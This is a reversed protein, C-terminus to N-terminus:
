PLFNVQFMGFHPHGSVSTEAHCLGQVDAVVQATTIWWVHCQSAEGGVMNEQGREASSAATSPIFVELICCLHLHSQLLDGLTARLFTEFLQM